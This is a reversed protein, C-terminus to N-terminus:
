ISLGQVHRIVMSKGYDVAFRAANQPSSFLNRPFPTGHGMVLQKAGKNPEVTKKLELIPEWKLHGIHFRASGTIRYGNLKQKEEVVPAHMEGRTFRIFVQNASELLAQGSSFTGPIDLRVGYQSPGELANDVRRIVVYGKHRGFDDKTSEIHFSHLTTPEM